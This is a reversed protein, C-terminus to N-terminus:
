KHDDPRVGKKYTKFGYNTPKFEGVIAVEAKEPVDLGLTWYIANVVIRRLGESQLDTAAGM